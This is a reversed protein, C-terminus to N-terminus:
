QPAAHPNPSCCDHGRHERRLENGVSGYVRYRDPDTVSCIAGHGPIRSKPHQKRQGVSFPLQDSSRSTGTPLCHVAGASRFANQSRIAPMTNYVLLACVVRAMEAFTIEGSGPM